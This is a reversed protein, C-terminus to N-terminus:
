RFGFTKACYYESFSAFIQRQQIGSTHVLFNLGEGLGAPAVLHNLAYIGDRKHNFADSTEYNTSQFGL